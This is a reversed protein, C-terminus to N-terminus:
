KPVKGGSFYCQKIVNTIKLMHKIKGPDIHKRYASKVVLEIDCDKSKSPFLYYFVVIHIGKTLVNGIVAMNSVKNRDESVWTKFNSDIM